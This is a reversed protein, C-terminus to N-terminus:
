LEEVAQQDIAEAADEDDKGFWIKKGVTRLMVISAVFATFDGLTYSYTIYKYTNTTNAITFASVMLTVFKVLLPTVALISKTSSIVAYMFSQYFTLLILLYSLPPLIEDAVQLAVESSTWLKIITRPTVWLIPCVIVLSLAALPWSFIMLQRVRNWLGKQAAWSSSSILGSFAGISANTIITFIKMGLGIVSSVATQIGAEAAKGNILSQVCLAPILALVVICFPLIGIKLATLTEPRFPKLFMKLTPKTNFKGVLFLPTLVFSLIVDGLNAAFGLAWGPVHFVFMFIPDAILCSIIFSATQFIAGLTAKGEGQLMSNGFDFIGNFILESSSTVLYYYCLDQYSAPINIANLIARGACAVVILVVISAIINLRVCDVSLQAAKEVEHMSLFRALQVTIGNRFFSTFATIFTRLFLISSIASSINEEPYAKSMFFASITDQIAQLVTFVWQGFSQEIIVRFPHKVGFKQRQDEEIKLVLDLQESSTEKKEDLSESTEISKEEANRM